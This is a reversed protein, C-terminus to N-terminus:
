QARDFECSITLMVEDGVLPVYSKIGFDSRRVIGSVNFGLVYAKTLSNIGGGNFTADLTIPKTVGHLTLDGTMKGTASGSVEIRTAKFTARPFKAVDFFDASKLNKDLEQNTTVIGKLNVTVELASKAPAMPDFDLKADFDNFLGYYTSFGFHSTSFIIKAHSKDLVFHGGEAKAMDTTPVPQALAPATSAVAFVAAVVRLKM